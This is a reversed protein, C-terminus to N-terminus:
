RFSLNSFALMHFALVKNHPQKDNNQTKVENHTTTGVHPKTTEENDQLTTRVHHTKIIIHHLLKVM